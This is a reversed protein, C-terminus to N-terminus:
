QEHKRISTIVIYFAGNKKANAVQIFQVLIRRRGTERISKAAHTGYKM